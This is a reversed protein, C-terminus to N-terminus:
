ELLSIRGHALIDVLDDHVCTTLLVMLDCGSSEKVKTEGEARAHM